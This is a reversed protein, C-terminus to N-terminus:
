TATDTAIRSKMVQRPEFQDMMRRANEEEVSQLRGWVFARGDELVCAAHYHGADVDIVKVDGFL